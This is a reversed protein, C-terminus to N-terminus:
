FIERSRAQWCNTCFVFLFFTGIPSLVLGSEWLNGLRFRPSEWLFSTLWPLKSFANRACYSDSSHHCFYFPEARPAALLIHKTLTSDQAESTGYRARLLRSIKLGISVDDHLTNGNYKLKKKLNRKWNCTEEERTYM